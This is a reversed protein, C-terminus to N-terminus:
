FPLLGTRLATEVEAIEAYLSRVREGDAELVVVKAPTHPPRTLTRFEARLDELYAVTAAREGATMQALTATASM